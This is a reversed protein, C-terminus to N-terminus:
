HVSGPNGEIYVNFWIDDLYNGLETDEEDYKRVASRTSVENIAKGNKDVRLDYDKNFRELEWYEPIDTIEYNWVWYLEVPVEVNFELNGRASITEESEDSEDLYFTLPDKFRVIGEKDTYKTQYITFHDMIMDEVRKKWKAKEAASLSDNPEYEFQVKIAYSKISPSQSTIYFPLPGYAGPAIKDSQINKFKGLNIKIKAIKQDDVDTVWGLPPESMIDPGGPTTAVILGGAGGTSLELGYMKPSNNITYWTYTATILVVALLVCMVASLIIKEEFFRKFKELKKM